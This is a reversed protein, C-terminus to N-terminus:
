YRKVSKKYNEAKEERGVGSGAGADYHGAKMVKGGTKISQPMMGPRMMAPATGPVVPPRPAMQPAGIPPAMPASPVAPASGDSKGPAVLINIKTHHAKGGKAMRSKKDPRHESKEGAAIGGSKLKLKTKAEGKHDHEEHEAVAKKVLKKDQAVDHAESSGGSARKVSYGAGRMMSHAKSKHKGDMGHTLM